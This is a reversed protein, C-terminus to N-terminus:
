FPSFGLQRTKRDVWLKVPNKLHGLGVTVIVGSGRSKSELIQFSKVVGYYSQTSGWDAMFDKYSYNPTPGWLQYAHQFDQAKLAEFFHLTAREEFINAFRYILLCALVVALALIVPVKLHRHQDSLM